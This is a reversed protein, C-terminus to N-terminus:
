VGGKTRLYALMGEIDGEQFLREMELDPEDEGVMKVMKELHEVQRAREAPFGGPMMLAETRAHSAIVLYALEVTDLKERTSLGECASYVRMLAALPEDM